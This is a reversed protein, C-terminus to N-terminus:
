LGSTMHMAYFVFRMVFAGLAALIAWSFSHTRGVAAFRERVTLSLVAVEISAFAAIASGYMTSFVSARAWSGVAGDLSALQLCALLLGLLLFSAGVACMSVSYKKPPIVEAWDLTLFVLFPAVVMALSIQLFPANPLNWTPITDVSYACAVAWVFAMASIVSLAKVLKHAMRNRHSSFSALWGVASLVLFIAGAWVENSLPSRGVGWFVFLANAPTGLHTASAILSLLTVTVPTIHYHELRERACEDLRGTALLLALLVYAMAGSPGFTTFFILTIESVANAIGSEYLM